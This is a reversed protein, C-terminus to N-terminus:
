SHPGIVAGIRDFLKKRLDGPDTWTIHSYQRTDFHVENILDYRCMWIVPIKLGMAFGAEFYVGGRPKDKECTFDAVVFRSKRIESIIEDDIKGITEKRDIRLPRFGCDLIAPEVGHEYAPQMSQDFWMAVFAQKSQQNAIELESLRAYGSLTLAVCSVDDKYGCSVLGREYLSRLLFELEEVNVSDTTALAYETTEDSYKENRLDFEVYGGLHEERDGLFTLLRDARVSASLRRFGDISSLRERDITPTENFENQQLIWTTLKAKDSVNFKAAWGNSLGSAIFRGGARPSSYKKLRGYDESVITARTGWIPCDVNETMADGCWGGWAGCRRRCASM